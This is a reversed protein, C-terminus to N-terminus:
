RRRIAARINMWNALLILAAGAIVFAELREDYLFVGVIAIVPLRAFDMPIVVSAPAHRLATTLCFHALLGACAILGLWPATEMSPVAIDGDYGAAILGMVLQMSTLYFLICTISETQTLKKTLIATVAFSVAAFAVAVHGPNIVAIDPRVVLLVGTFALAASIGKTATLREGLFLAALVMVWLPSTFEIAFVHTLPIMTLSYFWLNQGTFHGLNRWFHKGLNRRKVEHLHSTAGGIILVLVMGVISRYMMTEFTDMESAVARGAIAMSTFSAIAGLMWVAALLPRTDPIDSQASGTAITMNEGEM